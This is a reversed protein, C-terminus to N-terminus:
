VNVISTANSILVRPGYVCLRIMTVVSTAVSSLFPVHDNKCVSLSAFIVLIIVRTIMSQTYNYKKPERESVSCSFRSNLRHCSYTFVDVYFQPIYAIWGHRVKMSMSPKILRYISVYIHLAIVLWHEFIFPPITSNIDKCRVVQQLWHGRGSVYILRPM